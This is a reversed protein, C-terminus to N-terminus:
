ARGRRRGRGRRLCSASQDAPQSLGFSKWSGEGRQATKAIKSWRWPCPWHGRSKSTTAKRVISRRRWRASRPAPPAGTRPLSATFRGRRPRCSFVARSRPARFARKRRASASRPRQAFQRTSFAEFRRDQAGAVADLEVQDTRDVLRAASSMASNMASRASTAPRTASPVDRYSCGSELRNAVEGRRRLDRCGPRRRLASRRGHAAAVLRGAFLRRDPRGQVRQEPLRADDGLPDPGPYPYKLLAMNRCEADRGVVDALDEIAEVVLRDQGDAPLIPSGVSGCVQLHPGRAARM